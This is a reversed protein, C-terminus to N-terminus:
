ADSRSYSNKMQNSLEYLVKGLTDSAAQRVIDDKELKVNRPKPNDSIVKGDRYIKSGSNRGWSVSLMRRCM